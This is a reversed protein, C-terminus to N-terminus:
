LVQVPTNVYNLLDLLKEKEQPCQPPVFERWGQQLVEVTQCYLTDQGIATDDPIDLADPFFRSRRTMLVARRIVPEGSGPRSPM